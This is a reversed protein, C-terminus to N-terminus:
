FTAFALLRAVPADTCARSFRDYLNISCKVCDVCSTFALEPRSAYALPSAHTKSGRCLHPRARRPHWAHKGFEIASLRMGHASARSVRALDFSERRHTVLAAIQYTM